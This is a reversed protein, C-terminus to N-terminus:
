SDSSDGDGSSGWAAKFSQTTPGLILYALDLGLDEFAKTVEQNKELANKLKLMRASDVFQATWAPHEILRRVGARFDADQSETLIDTMPNRPEARHVTQFWLQRILAAIYALSAQYTMRRAREIETPTLVPADEAPTFALDNIMNLCAIVNAAEADRRAQADDGIDSLADMILLKEILKSKLQQETIVVQGSPVGPRKVHAAIRLDESSLVNQVLASQLAQKARSKETSPVWALFGQESVANSGTAQEYEYFKHEWEDSMKGALEFPSLPLKKIKAQISNVLENARVSSLNLYVKATVEQRDLMWTAITKHQGDFMLLRVPKGLDETEARCSPPEHLVNRQLDSYIAWAHELRLARPQCADDNFIANRPLQLFAYEYYGTSTSESYVPVTTTTGDPLEFTASDGDRSLVVPKPEIGFHEQFGDYKLRRKQAFAALKLYPKVPVTKANRKARNCAVHALNLNSIATAGGQSEPIDHDAELDDAARNLKLECLFCYGGSKAWLLDEADARENDPLKSKMSKSM